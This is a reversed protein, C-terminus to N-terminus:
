AEVETEEIREVVIGGPCYTYCEIVAKGQEMKIVAKDCYLYEERNMAIVKGQFKTAELVTKGKRSIVSYFTKRNNREQKVTYGVNRLEKKQIGVTKKTIHM